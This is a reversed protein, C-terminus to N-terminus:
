EEEEGHEAEELWGAIARLHQDVSSRASELAAKDGSLAAGKADPYANALSEQLARYEPLLRSNVGWPDLEGVQKQVSELHSGAATRAKTLAADNKARDYSTRVAKLARVVARHQKLRPRDFLMQREEEERDLHERWQAEARQAAVPDEPLQPPEVAGPPTARRPAKSDLGSAPAPKATQALVPSQPAPPLPEAAPKHCAAILVFGLTIRLASVQKRRGQPAWQM